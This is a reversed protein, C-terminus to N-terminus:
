PAKKKVPTTRDLVTVYKILTRPPSAARGFSTHARAETRLSAQERPKLWNIYPPLCEPKTKQM